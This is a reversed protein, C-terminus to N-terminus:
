TARDRRVPAVFAAYGISWVWSQAALPLFPEILVPYSLLALLSAFNSLAFLRYPVAHRFRQWFWAQM